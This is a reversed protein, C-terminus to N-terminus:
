REVLRFVAIEPLCFLRLGAHSALGRGTYMLTSGLSSWGSVYRPDVRCHTVPPGCCPAVVQGGHSHGCLVVPVSRAACEHILDPGHTLLIHPLRGQLPFLTGALSCNDVFRTCPTSGAIVLGGELEVTQNALWIVGVDQLRKDLEGRIQGRANYDHDGPIAVITYDRALPALYDLVSCVERASRNIFDGTICILDPDEERVIETMRGFLYHSHPDGFHLDTLHLLKRGRWAQPLDPSPLDHRTVEVEWPEHLTARAALAMGAAVITGSAAALWPWPSCCRSM